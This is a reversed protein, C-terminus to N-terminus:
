EMNTIIQLKKKSEHKGHVSFAWADFLASFLAHTIVEFCTIINPQLCDLRESIM